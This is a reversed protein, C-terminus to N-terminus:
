ATAEVVDQKHKSKIYELRKEHEFKRVAQTPRAPFDQLGRPWVGFRDKYKHSAWGQSYGREAALYLFGSWFEQKENKPAKKPKKEKEPKVGGFERFEAEIAVVGHDTLWV